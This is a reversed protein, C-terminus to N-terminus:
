GLAFGERHVCAFRAFSLRGYGRASKSSLYKRNLGTGQVDPM